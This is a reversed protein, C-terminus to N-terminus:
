RRPALKISWEQVFGRIGELLGRSELLEEICDRMVVDSDDVDAPITRQPKGICLDALAKRMEVETRRKQMSKLANIKAM